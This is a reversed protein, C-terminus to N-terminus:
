PCGARWLWGQTTAEQAVLLLHTVPPPSRLTSKKSTPTILPKPSRQPQQVVSAPPGKIHLRTETMSTGELPKTRERRDRPWWGLSM